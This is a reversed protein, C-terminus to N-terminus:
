ELYHIIPLIEGRHFVLGGSGMGMLFNQMGLEDSIDDDFGFTQAYSNVSFLDVLRPLFGDFISSSSLRSLKRNVYFNRGAEEMLVAWFLSRASM